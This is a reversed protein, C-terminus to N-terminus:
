NRTAPTAALGLLAVLAVAYVCDVFGLAPVAANYGHWMALHLMLALAFVGLGALALVLWVVFVKLFDFL